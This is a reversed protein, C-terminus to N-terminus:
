ARRSVRAYQAWATSFVPPPVLGVNDDIDAGAAAAGAHPQRAEAELPARSGAARATAGMPASPQQAHRVAGVREHPNDDCTIGGVGGEHWCARPPPAAPCLGAPRLAVPRQLPAGNAEHLRGDEGVGASARASLPPWSQELSTPCATPPALDSQRRALTQGMTAHQSPPAMAGWAVGVACESTVQGGSYLPPALSGDGDAVMLVTPVPLGDDCPMAPTVPLSPRSSLSRELGWVDSADEVVGAPRSTPFSARGELGGMLPSPPASSLAGGGGLTPPLRSLVVITGRAGSPDPQSAVAMNPCRRTEATGDSPVDAYSPNPAPTGFEGRTVYLGGLQEPTVPNPPTGVLTRNPPVGELMPDAHSRHGPGGADARTTVALRHNDPSVEPIVSLPTLVPASNAWLHTDATDRNDSIFFLPLQGPAPARLGRMACALGSVKNVQSTEAGFEGPASAANPGRTAPLDHWSECFLAGDRVKHPAYNVDGIKDFRSPKSDVDVPASAVIPERMVTSDNWSERFLVVDDFNRSAVRQAAQLELRRRAIGSLLEEFVEAEEPDMRSESCPGPKSNRSGLAISSSELSILYDKLSESELYLDNPNLNSATTGPAPSGFTARLELTGPKSGIEDLVSNSKNSNFFEYRPSNEDYLFLVDTHPLFKGGSVEGAMNSSM